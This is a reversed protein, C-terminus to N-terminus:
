KLIQKSKKESIPGWADRVNLLRYGMQKHYQIWFSERRKTQLRDGEFEEVLKSDKLFQRVEEETYKDFSKHLGPLHPKAIGRHVARYDTLHTSIRNSLHRKTSGIYIGDPTEIAYIKSSKDARSHDKSYQLTEDYRNTFYGDKGWYYDPRTERFKKSNINCCIKCCRQLGDNSTKNKYFETTPKNEGCQPCHKEM